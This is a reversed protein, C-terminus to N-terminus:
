LNLLVLAVLITGLAIAAACITLQVVTLKRTHRHAFLYAATLLLIIIAILCLNGLTTPVYTTEGWDNVVVQYLM